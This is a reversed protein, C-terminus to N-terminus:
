SCVSSLSCTEDYIESQQKRTRRGKREELFMRHRERWTELMTEPMVVQVRMMRSDVAVRRAIKVNIRVGAVPAADAMINAIGEIIAIAMDDGPDVAAEAWTAAGVEIIIRM